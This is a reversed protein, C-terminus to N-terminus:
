VLRDSPTPIQGICSESSGTRSGSVGAYPIKPVWVAALGVLLLELRLPPDAANMAALELTLRHGVVDPASIGGPRLDAGPDFMHERLLLGPHPQEDARDADFAGLGLDRQGIQGVVHVAQDEVFSPARCSLQARCEPFRIFYPSLRM